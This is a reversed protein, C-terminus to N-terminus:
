WSHNDPKVSQDEDVSCAVKEEAQFFQNKPPRQSNAAPYNSAVHDKFRQNLCRDIQENRLNIYRMTKNEFVISAISADFNNGEAELTQLKSSRILATIGENCIQNFSVNVHIISSHQALRQAGADCIGNYCFNVSQLTSIKLLLTINEDSLNNNQVTLNRLSECKINGILRVHEESLFNNLFVLSVIHNNRALALGLGELFDLGIEEDVEFILESLKEDNQTLRGLLNELYKKM